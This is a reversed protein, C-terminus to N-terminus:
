KKDHRRRYLGTGIVVFVLGMVTIAPSKIGKDFVYGYANALLMLLGIIAMIRGSIRKDM